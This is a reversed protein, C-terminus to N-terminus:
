LYNGSKCHWARAGIRPIQTHFIFKRQPTVQKISNLTILDIMCAAIPLQYLQYSPSCSQYLLAIKANFRQPYPLQRSSPSCFVKLVVPHWSGWLVETHAHVYLVEVGDHFIASTHMRRSPLEMCCTSLWPWWRINRHHYTATATHLLINQSTHSNFLFRQKLSACQNLSGLTCSPLMSQAIPKVWSCCENSRQLYIVIATVTNWARSCEEESQFKGPKFQSVPPVYWLAIAGSYVTGKSRPLHRGM